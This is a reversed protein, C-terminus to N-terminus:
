QVMGLRDAGQPAACTVATGASFRHRCFGPPLTGWVGADSVRLTASNRALLTGPDPSRPAPPTAEPVRVVLSGGLAQM